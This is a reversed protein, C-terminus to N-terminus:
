ESELFLKKVIICVLQTEDIVSITMRDRPCNQHVLNWLGFHFNMIWLERMKIKTIGIIRHIFAIVAALLGDTPLNDKRIFPTQM